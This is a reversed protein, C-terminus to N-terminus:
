FGLGARLYYATYGESRAVSFSILNRRGPTVFFVGGGYGDHWRNSSEGELYVRGVDYFGLLGFRGPVAIFARTLTLYLEASGFLSGDGAYRQPPLGRVASGGGAELPSYPTKGGVFASEFFPYTGFVRQGGAKLSLTVGRGGKTGVYARAQGHIEGFADTVDAASPYLAGTASVYVGRRPLALGDTGDILVRSTVGLQTFKGDGYFPQGALTPNDRPDTNNYKATLGFSIDTKPSPSWILAAEAAARDQGIRYLDQDGVSPTANGFGYFRLTEIGSGLGFFAMRWRSNEFRFQGLYTARVSTEETSYLVRLSQKEAWPDKRFGYRTTNLAGGILVGTDSGFGLLFLPGTFRGWDRNPIWEARGTHPPETYPGRDWHTGPGKTVRAQPSSASFRTGGGQSDDVVDEGDGGVVRLLVGGHRGGTVVVTDNGGYLYLRVERTTDAEFRRHFYPEGEGARVTLELDGNDFRRADIREHQDTCFVDVERNIFRYFREAQEVLADRRGKLGAVLRAGDKPFYEAPMRRAAAELVADTMEAKLERAVEQWVPRELDALFRKDVDWGDFTLGKLNSYHPGYKVLMPLQPRLLAPALGEFRAFAQDRDEPIPQWRDKGPVQGFRWQDRHRDWDGMLQDVLRAKLYARSDVRVDPGQRLQKWMEEGDLTKTTGAFVKSGGWVELDGVMNGFQKQFEGLAPDDPMVFLRPASHLVGAPELLGPAIIHGAPHGSAMQDLLVNRAVTERLEEPLLGVPDKVVPRFTYDKGDAGKLGLAKTQGHGFIRTASLGGAYSRLDLVEVRVPTTWLDRYDAGWVWRHFGGAKFQPGIVTSRVADGPQDQASAQAAALVFAVVSLRWSSASSAPM